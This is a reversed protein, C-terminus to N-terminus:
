QGHSPPNTYVELLLLALWLPPQILRWQGESRVLFRCKQVKDSRLAHDESLCHSWKESTKPVLDVTAKPSRTQKVLDALTNGAYALACIKTKRELETSM